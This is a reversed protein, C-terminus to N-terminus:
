PFLLAALNNVSELKYELDRKFSRLQSAIYEKIEADECLVTFVKLNEEGANIERGFFVDNTILWVNRESAATRIGEHASKLIHIREDVFQKDGITKNPYVVKKLESLFQKEGMVKKYQSFNPDPSNDFVPGLLWVSVWYDLAKRFREKLILDLSKDKFFTWKGFILPFLDTYNPSIEDLLNYFEQPQNRTSKHIFVLAEILGTVTLTFSNGHQGQWKYAALAILDHHYLNNIHRLTTRYDKGIKQPLDKQLTVKEELLTLLIKYSTEVSSRYKAKQSM